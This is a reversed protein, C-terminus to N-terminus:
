FLSCRVSFLITHDVVSSEIVALSWFRVDKGVNLPSILTSLRALHSRIEVASRMESVLETLKTQSKSMRGADGHTATFLRRVDASHSV